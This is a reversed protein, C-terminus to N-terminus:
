GVPRSMAPTAVVVLCRVPVGNFLDPETMAQEAKKTKRRTHLGALRRAPTVLTLLRRWCIGGSTKVFAHFNPWLLAM